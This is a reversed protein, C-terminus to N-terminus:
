ATLKAFLKPIQPFISEMKMIEWVEFWWYDKIEKEQIKFKPMSEEKVESHFIYECKKVEGFKKSNYYIKYMAIPLAQSKINELGFSDKEGLFMMKLNFEEKIERKIAQHLTEWEDIHWGPLTWIDSKHHQVLLYKWEENKLLARVVQRM